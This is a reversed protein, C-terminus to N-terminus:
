CEGLIKKEYKNAKVNIAVYDNKIGLIAQGKQLNSMMEVINKDKMVIKQLIEKDNYEMKFFLKFASNNLVGKGFSGGDYMFFDSIDQTITVISAKKKRITKYLEFIIFLMNNDKSLNFFRWIEDFYIITNTKSSKNLNWEIYEDIENLLYLVIEPVFNKNVNKLCFIAGTKLIKDVCNSKNLIMKPSRNSIRLVIEKLELDGIGGILDNITPFSNSSIRTDKLFINNISNKKFLDEITIINFKAYTEIMKSKLVGKYKKIDEDLKCFLNIIKDIKSIIVKPGYKVIEYEFIEMINLSIFSNYSNSFDVYTIGLNEAIKQYEGEVDFIFQCKSSLYHRIIILKTFFSKGSGSGGFICINANLYKSNFIDLNCIRNNNKFFGFMIGNRDFISDSIFPFQNALASTTFNKYSLSQFKFNEIMYPMSELYCDLQRFNAISCIIGKAYLRARLREVNRFLVKLNKEYMTIIVSCLFIEEGNIQIEKRLNMADERSKGVLDIDIQNKNISKLESANVSISYTLEKLIKISDQKQVHITIDCKMDRPLSLIIDLFDPSRPYNNIILSSIYIGEVCLVRFRTNDVYSPFINKFRNIKM